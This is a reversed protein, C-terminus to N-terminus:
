FRYKTAINFSCKDKTLLFSGTAPWTPTCHIWRGIMGGIEALAQQLKGELFIQPISSAKSAM